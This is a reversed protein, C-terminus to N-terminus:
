KKKNVQKQRSGEDIATQLRTIQRQIGDLQEQLRAVVVEESEGYVAAREGVQQYYVEEETLYRSGEGFLLWNLNLDPIREHLKTLFELGPSGNKLVSHVSQRTVGIEEAFKKQSQYRENIVELLRDRLEM